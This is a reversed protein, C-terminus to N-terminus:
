KMLRDFFSVKPPGILKIKLSQGDMEKSICNVRELENLSRKVSTPPMDLTRELMLRSTRVNVSGDCLSALLRKAKNKGKLDKSYILWKPIFRTDSNLKSGLAKSSVSISKFDMRKIFIYGNDSLRKVVRRLKTKGIGLDFSMSHENVSEKDLIYLLACVSDSDLSEITDLSVRVVSPQYFPLM